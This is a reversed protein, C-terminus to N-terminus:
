IGTGNEFEQILKNLYWRCKLLDQLGNKKKYRSIYKIVNGELYGRFQNVSMNDQIYDIVEIDRDAYHMPHNIADRIKVEM